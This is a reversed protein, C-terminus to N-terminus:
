DCWLTVRTQATGRYLLRLTRRPKLASLLCIIAHNSFFGLVFMEAPVATWLQCKWASPVDREWGRAKSAPGEELVQFEFRWYRRLPPATASTKRATQFLLRTEITGKILYASKRILIQGFWSTTKWTSCVMQTQCVVVLNENRKEQFLLASFHSFDGRCNRKATTILGNLVGPIARKHSEPGSRSFFSRFFFFFFEWCRRMLYFIQLIASIDLALFLPATTDLQHAIGVSRRWLEQEVFLMFKLTFVCFSFLLLSDSHGGPMTGDPFCARPWSSSMLDHTDDVM